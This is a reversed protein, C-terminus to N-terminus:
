IVEKFPIDDSAVAVGAPKPTQAQGRGKNNYGDAVAQKVQAPTEVKPAFQRAQTNVPAMQRGQAAEADDDEPAIGVVASLGYRRAYTLASGVSQPKSDMATVTFSEGIFEGSKHLLLTTVTVAAGEAKPLQVISLGYKSLPKRCAEWCSALDAYRSRFHPNERDKSAGEIESQALALATALNVISDSREV